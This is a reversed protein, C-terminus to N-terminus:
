QSIYVGYSVGNERTTTCCLNPKWDGNDLNELLLMTVLNDLCTV